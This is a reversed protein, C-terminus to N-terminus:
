WPEGCYDWGNWWKESSHHRIWQFLTQNGQGVEIHPVVSIVMVNQVGKM